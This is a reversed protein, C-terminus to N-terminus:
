FRKLEKLKQESKKFQNGVNNFTSLKKMVKVYLDKNESSDLEYLNDYLFRYAQTRSVDLDCEKLEHIFDRKSNLVMFALRYTKYNILLKHRSDVKTRRNFSLIRKVELFLEKDVLPLINNIWRSLNTKPIGLEKSAKYLSSKNDVIYNAANLVIKIKQELTYQKEEM